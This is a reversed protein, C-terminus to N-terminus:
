DGRMVEISKAIELQPSIAELPDVQQQSVGAADGNILGPLQDAVKIGGQIQDPGAALAEAALLQKAVLFRPDELQLAASHTIRFADIPQQQYNRDSHQSAYQLYEGHAKGAFAAADIGVPLPAQANPPDAQLPQLLSHDM